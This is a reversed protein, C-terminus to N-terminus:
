ILSYMLYACDDIHIQHGPCPSLLSGANRRRAMGVWPPRAAGTPRHEPDPAAPLGPMPRTVSVFCPLAHPLGVNYQPHVAASRGRHRNPRITPLGNPMVATEMNATRKPKASIGPPTV